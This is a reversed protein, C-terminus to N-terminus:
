EAATAAVTRAHRSGCGLLSLGMGLCAGLFAGMVGGLCMPRTLTATQPPQNLRVADGLFQAAFDAQTKRINEILHAYSEELVKLATEFEALSKSQRDAGDALFSRMNDYQETMQLIENQITTVRLGADISERVLRSHADNAVLTAVMTRDILPAQGSTQAGITADVAYEQARSQTRLLLNRTLAEEEKALKLRDYLSRLENQMKTMAADRDLARIGNCEILDTVLRGSPM